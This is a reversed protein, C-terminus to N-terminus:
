GAYRVRMRSRIGRAEQEANTTEVEIGQASLQTKYADLEEYNKLLIEVNLEQRQETYSMSLVSHEAKAVNAFQSTLGIFASGASEGQAGSQGLKSAMRRRLQDISVPQSENPFTTKYFTFSEQELRDAEADAWWGQVILSLFGVGVWAAALAAM